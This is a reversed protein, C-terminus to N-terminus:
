IENNLLDEPVLEMMMNVYARGEDPWRTQVWDPCQGCSNFEKYNNNLHANRLRTMFDSQWIEKVTNDSFSCIQSEHKWDAPCFGLMGEPSLVLREWPYVCPRREINRSNEEMKEKIGAKAGSASHLRRIVVYDAGVENWFNKFSDVENKNFPQKVFSVVLKSNYNGSKILKILRLINPRVKSLNGKVRIKSYTGDDFADLSIDFVNIGADLFIKAKKESLLSGNTTLNIKTKVHTGAYKVMEDFDPHILTEGSASYRLYQCFGFGDVSIEDIMKKHLQVDLHVGKFADTKVFESHPCHVCAYNCYQTSDIIIQSPFESHLHKQFGFKINKDM